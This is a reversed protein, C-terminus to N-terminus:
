KNPFSRKSSITNVKKKPAPDQSPLNLDIVLKNLETQDPIKAPTSEATELFVYKWRYLLIRSTNQM